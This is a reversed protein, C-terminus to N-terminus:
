LYVNQHEIDLTKILKKALSLGLEAAMLEMRPITCAAKIPKLHSRAQVFGLEVTVYTKNRVLAVASYVDQLVDVFIHVQKDIIDPNAGPILTRKIEIGKLQDIQDQWKFWAEEMEQPVSDKWALGLRWCDQVQLKGTILFPIFVGMPDYLIHLTTLMKMKTIPVEAREATIFDFGLVDTVYNWLLGLVKVKSPPRKGEFIDYIIRDKELDKIIKASPLEKLLVYSNGVFKRIDMACVPFFGMLQKFLERAMDETPRSDAMDDILLAKAITQFAEPFEDKHKLSQLFIAAMAVRPSNCKGFLHVKYRYIVIKGEEYWLFRLYDKDDEPVRVQLFMERVNDGTIAFDYQRFRHVVSVLENMVTPGTHIYYNICSGTFKAAGDFVPRVKTTEKEEKVV